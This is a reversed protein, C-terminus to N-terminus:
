KKAYLYSNEDKSREKSTRKKSFTMMGIVIFYIGCSNPSLAVENFMANAFFSLILSYLLIKENKGMGCPIRILKLFLFVYATIGVVGLQAIVVGIGTEMIYFDAGGGTVGALVGVSGVGMGLPYSFPVTLSRIFMLVHLGTSSGAGFKLMAIGIILGLALSYCTLIKTKDKFYLYIVFFILLGLLAGKSITLACCILVLVMLLKKNFYWCLLFAAFLFTGFNVPDAFSSVMRIMYQRGLIVESAYWNSPFEGTATAIGKLNWLESIHFFSWIYDKFIYEFFGFLVVFWIVPIIYKKFTYLNTKTGFTIGFLLFIFPALINRLCSIFSTIRVPHIFLSCVSFIILLIIVNLCWNSANIKGKNLYVVLPWAFALVVNVSLLIQLEMSSLHNVALGLYLNQICSLIVPFILFLNVVKSNRTMANNGLVTAFIIFLGCFVIEVVSPLVFCGAILVLYSCIFIAQKKTIKVNM